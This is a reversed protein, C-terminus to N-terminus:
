KKKPAPKPAPKKATTKKPAPKTAPKTTAPKTAAPTAVVLQKLVNTGGGAETYEISVPDGKKLESFVGLGSTVIRSNDSVNFVVSTTGGATKIDARLWQPSNTALATIHGTAALTAPADDQARAALVILLTLLAANKMPASHLRPPTTKWHSSNQPASNEM